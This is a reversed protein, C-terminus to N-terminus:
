CHEFYTDRVRRARSISFGVITPIFFIVLFGLLSRWQSMPLAYFGYMNMATIGLPFLLWALGLAFSFPSRYFLILDLSDIDEDNKIQSLLMLNISDLLVFILCEIALVALELIFAAEASEITQNIIPIKLEQLQGTETSVEHNAKSTNSIAVLLTLYVGSNLRCITSKTRLPRLGADNAFSNPGVAHDIESHTRCSLRSAPLPSPPNVVASRSSSDRNRRSFRLSFSSRSIRDFAAAQNAVSLPVEFREEPEHLHVLGGV